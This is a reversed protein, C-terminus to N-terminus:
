RSELRLNHVKLANQLDLDNESISCSNLGSIQTFPEFLAWNEVGDGYRSVYRIGAYRPPERYVIDSIKQTLRRNQSTTVSLDFESLGEAICEAAMRRRLFATWGIGCIDAFQGEVRATGM